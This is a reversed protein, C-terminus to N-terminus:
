LGVVPQPTAAMGGTVGDGLEDNFNEGWCAVQGPSGLLACTSEAGNSSIELVGSTLGTVEVPTSSNVPSGGNGLEDFLNDGWCWVSGDDLLACANYTGTVVARAPGPLSVQVPTTHPNTDPVSGNGLEGDGNYGWCFVAGTVLVACSFDGFNSGGIFGGGSAIQMPTAPLGKVQVPVDSDSTKGNGLEGYAGSGWCYAKASLAVACATGVGDAAIQAVKGVNIVSVPVDSQNTHGNGLEGDSGYGWCFPSNAISLACTDSQGVSVSGVSVSGGPWATVPVPTAQPTDTGNGVEGFQNNGWCELSESTSLACAVDFGAALQALGGSLGAVAVATDHLNFDNGDAEGWCAAGLTQTLACGVVDGESIQQVGSTLGIVLTPLTRNVLTGDGIEGGFTNNGWCEVQNTSIVACTHEGGASVQVPGGPGGSASGQLGFVPTPINRNPKGTGVGDGLEGYRGDGWCEIQLVGNRVLACTHHGNASVQTVGSSLTAVPMPVDSNTTTGDGLEGFANDGWCVLGGGSNIACSQGGGETIATVGSGLGTVAVPTHQDTTTGNGVEGDANAGWCEVSGNSLLVCAAGSDGAAIQTAPLRLGSVLVPVKSLTTTGNGLEGHTNNGWCYVAGSVTIGCTFMAGASIQSFKLGGHVAVPTLRNVKTGDGVQGDNNDGWCWANSSQDIACAQYQGASIQVVPPLGQVMVPVPNNFPSAAGDGLEGVDNRGWCFAQDITTVACTFEIGASVQTNTAANAATPSSAAQAIVSAALLSLGAVGM